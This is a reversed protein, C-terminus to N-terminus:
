AVVWDSGDWRWYGDPSLQGAHYQATAAVWDQGNWRWNGDPSLQDAHVDGHEAGSAEGGAAGGSAAGAAAVWDSGNWQWHGDPSLQGGHPEAAAAVWDVCTWRWQGDDSLQNIEFRQEPHELDYRLQSLADSPSSWQYDLSNQQEWYVIGEWTRRTVMGDNDQGLSSQLERVANETTMDYTGDPFHRYYGLRYLRFQLEQVQEGSDGLALDPEDGRLQSVM